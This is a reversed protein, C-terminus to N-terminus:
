RCIPDTSSAPTRCILPKQLPELRGSSAIGSPPHWVPPSLRGPGEPGGASVGSSGATISTRNAKTLFPPRPMTMPPLRPDATHGLPRLCDVPLAGVGEHDRQLAALEPAWPPPPRCNGRSLPASPIQSWKDFVIPFFKHLIEEVTACSAHVRFSQQSARFAQPCGSDNGPPIGDVKPRRFASWMDHLSGM